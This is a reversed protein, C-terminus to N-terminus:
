AIAQCNISYFIKYSFNDKENECPQKVPVFMGDICGIIVQCFECIDIFQRTVAEFYQKAVPLKILSINCRSYLLRNYDRCKYTKFSYDRCKETEKGSKTMVKENLFNSWWVETRFLMIWVNRILRSIWFAYKLHMARNPVM